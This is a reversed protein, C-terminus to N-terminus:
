SISDLEAQESEWREYLKALEAKKEKHKALTQESKDDDYFGPEAMEKELSKIAKEVQEIKREVNQISKELKKQQPSPENKQHVTKNSTAAKKKQAKQTEVERMNDLERKKLFYNVDGLYEYLQGDRFEITRDTLGGLFHRDHSVVILTGDYDDIAQRLIEKSVIDLHNTPEDLVLLNFPRLLLCALALRAREGGSLVSVKKEADEGSFMFAGLINRLKTRMEPPSHNEMTELLTRNRDLTEAQNQAYYGVTVNHGLTIDGSTKELQGVLIKALTTKGQGNQGVFAVRNQREIALDINNLVELDGYHKTVNIGEAVIEGSRPAEPFKLNMASVDESEVEIREMKDLQKKMSQAMKTKTAKAMFRNITRERQAIVKQQNEFASVMKERRDKRLELYDTYAANYDQVRGLEIEITRNTCNDLFQQDHSIIIISGSYSKLFKELWIISEIDLHNTPEDLLLYDPKQLLMKALVVRMQWGGSFEEIKRTHDKQKFGLGSLVKIADGESSEGGLLAFQENLDSFQQLIDLYEQSEYDTRTAIAHNLSEIKENLEELASFATMTEEIVTKDQEIEIEQHLFALTGETPMTISGELPTIESALIKLLTSKGAGNRGVLGVKDRNKIVLNIHDLLVRDGYQVFINTATLL